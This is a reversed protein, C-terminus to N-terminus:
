DFVAYITREIVAMHALLGADDRDLDDFLVTAAPKGGFTVFLKREDFDALYGWEQNDGWTWNPWIGVLLYGALNGQLGRLAAYWDDGASVNQAIGHAELIALSAPDAKASEDVIRMAKVQRRVIDADADRIFEGVRAGLWSPYSDSHNYTRYVEGDAKIAITGNTSM